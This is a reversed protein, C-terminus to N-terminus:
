YLWDLGLLFLFMAIIGLIITFKCLKYCLYCCQIQKETCCSHMVATIFAKTAVKLFYGFLIFCLVIFCVTLFSHERASEYLVFWHMHLRTTFYKDALFWIYSHKQESISTETSLIIEETEKNFNYDTYMYLEKITQFLLSMLDKIIYGYYFVNSTDGSMLLYGCTDVRLSRIKMNDYYDNQLGINMYHLAMNLWIQSDSYNRLYYLAKGMLLSSEAKFKPLISHVQFIANALGIVRYYYQKNLADKATDIFFKACRITVCQKVLDADLMKHELNYVKEKNGKRRFFKIAVEYTDESFDSINATRLYQYVDEEIVSSLNNAKDINDGVFANSYDFYLLLLLRAQDMQSLSTLQQEYALERFHFAQLRDGINSYAISISFYDCDPFCHKLQGYTELIRINCKRVKVDDGNKMYYERLTSYFRRYASSNILRAKYAKVIRERKSELIKIAIHTEEHFSIKQKAVLIVLDTYIEFFSPISAFEDDTYSDLGELMHSSYTHIEMPLWKSKMANLAFKVGHFTKNVHKSTKFLSFMHHFNHQEMYLDLINDKVIRDLRQAYYLQFAGDFYQTLMIETNKQYFYTKLLQHFHFRETARNYHLLSRQILMRLMMEFYSPEFSYGFIQFASETTFTEPFHSLDVCLRQLQPTLYSYALGISVDIRSNLELPSLTAVVNERLGQIVEKVTPAEPFNFIAGIIDLALPVNGALNAIEVMQDNILQPAVRSLLEISAETSLNYITHLRFHGVETIRYQSTLLYKVNRKTSVSKIDHLFEKESHDFLKDCNDFILLTNSYQNQVWKQFRSFTVKNSISDLISLMIKESLTDVDTVSGLDVYHVTVKRKVFIEGIKIALTSKGFGPPGVIHVVRVDSSTFDLYGTIIHIDDERGVFRDVHPLSKSYCTGLEYCDTNSWFIAIVVVLLTVAIFAM